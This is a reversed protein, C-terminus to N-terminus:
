ICLNKLTLFNDELSTEARILNSFNIVDVYMKEVSLLWETMM